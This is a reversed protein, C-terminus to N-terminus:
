VGFMKLIVPILEDGTIAILILAILARNSLKNIAGEIAQFRENVSRELAQVATRVLDRASNMGSNIDTRLERLEDKIADQSERLAGLEHNHQEALRESADLRYEHEIVKQHWQDPSEPM